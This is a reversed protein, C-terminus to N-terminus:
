RNKNKHITKGKHDNLKNNKFIGIYEVDGQKLTGHIYHIYNYNIIEYTGKFIDGNNHLVFGDSITVKSLLDTKYLVGISIFNNIDVFKFIYKNNINSKANEYDLNSMVRIISNKKDDERKNIRYKYMNDIKNRSANTIFMSKIDKIYNNPFELYIDNILDNSINYSKIEFYTNNSLISKLHLFKLPKKYIYDIILHDQIIDKFRIDNDFLTNLYDGPNNIIDIMSKTIHSSDISLLTFNFCIHENINLICSNFDTIDFMFLETNLKNHLIQIDYIFSKFMNSPDKINIIQDNHIYKTICSNNDNITYTNYLYDYDLYNNNENTYIYNYINFENCILKFESYNCFDGKYIPVTKDGNFYIEVYGIPIKEKYLKKYIIHNGCPEIITNDNKIIQYKNSFM